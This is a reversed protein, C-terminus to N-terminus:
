RTAHLGPAGDDSPFNIRFFFRGPLSTLRQPRGKVGLFRSCIRPRMFLFCPTTWSPFFETLIRATGRMLGKLRQLIRRQNYIKAEILNRATQMVFGGADMTRQYQLMRSGADATPTPLWSGIVSGKFDLYHVPIGRKLLATLAPPTIHVTEDIVVEELDFLPIEVLLERGPREASANSFVSLHESELRVISGETELYAKM